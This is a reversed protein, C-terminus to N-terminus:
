RDLLAFSAGMMGSTASIGILTITVLPEGDREVAFAAASAALVAGAGIWLKTSTKMPRPAVRPRHVRYAVFQDPALTMSVVGRTQDVRYTGGLQGALQAVSTTTAALDSRRAGHYDVSLTGAVADYIVDDACGDPVTISARSTTVLEIRVREVGTGAAGVTSGLIGADLGALRYGDYDAVLRQASDSTAIPPAGCPRDGAEGAADYRRALFQEADRAPMTALVYGGVEVTPRGARVTGSGACAPLFVSLMMVLTARM